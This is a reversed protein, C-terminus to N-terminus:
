PSSSINRINVRDELDAFINEFKARYCFSWGVGVARAGVRIHLRSRGVRERERERERVVRGVKELFSM